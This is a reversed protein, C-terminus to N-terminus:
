EHPQLLEKLPGTFTRRGRILWDGVLLVCLGLFVPGAYNMNQATVPLSSPFPVFIVVFTGFLIAYVNVALGWRGMTWPGFKIPEADRNFRKLVLLVIPIIYSIYLSSTTLALIAALAMTSGINIFSPLM